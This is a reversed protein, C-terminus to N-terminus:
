LISISLYFFVRKKINNYTNKYIIYSIINYTYISLTYLYLNIKYFFCFFFVSSILVLVVPRVDSPIESPYAFSFM